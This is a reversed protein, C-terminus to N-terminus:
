YIILNGSKKQEIMRLLIGLEQESLFTYFHGPNRREFEKFRAMFETEELGIMVEKNVIVGGRSIAILVANTQM